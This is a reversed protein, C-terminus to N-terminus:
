DDIVRTADQNLIHFYTIGGDHYDGLLWIGGRAISVESITCLHPTNTFHWVSGLLSRKITEELKDRM